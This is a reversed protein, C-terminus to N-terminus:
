GAARGRGKLTTRLRGRARHLLVRLYDRNVKFEKCVADKDHEDLFIRKLLERDKPALENLAQKVLEKRQDQILEGEVSPEGSSIEGADDPLPSLRKDRRFSELIVHNCVMSVYAGLREPQEITGKRASRLVRLLTEQRIDDALQPSRLRVSAKIRILDGFYRAFHDETANDGDGLRRVYDADFSYREQL